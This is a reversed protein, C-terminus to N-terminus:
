GQNIMAEGHGPVISSVPGLQQDKGISDRMEFGEGPEPRQRDYPPVRGDDMHRQHSLVDAGPIDSVQLQPTDKGM